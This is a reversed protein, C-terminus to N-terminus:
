NPSPREVRDIVLHEVPAKTPELKLGLQEQLATFVSPSTPLESPPIGTVEAYRERRQENMAFELHIDFKGTLGTRDIVQEGEVENLFMELFQEITAGRREDRGADRPYQWKDRGEV